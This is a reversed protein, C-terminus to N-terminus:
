PATSPADLFHVTQLLGREEPSTVRTGLWQL